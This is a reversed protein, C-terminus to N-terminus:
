VDHAIFGSDVYILSRGVVDRDYEVHMSIEKTTDVSTSDQTRAHTCAM